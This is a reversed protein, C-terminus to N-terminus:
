LSYATLLQDVLRSRIQGRLNENNLNPYCNKILEDAEGLAMVVIRSANKMEANAEIKPVTFTYDLTGQPSKKCRDLTHLTGDQEVFWGSKGEKARTSQAPPTAENNWRIKVSCKQCQEIM